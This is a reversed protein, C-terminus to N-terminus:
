EVLKRACRLCATLGDRRSTVLTRKVPTQHHCNANACKESLHFKTGTTFVTTRDSAKSEETSM